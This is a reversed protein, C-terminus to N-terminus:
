LPLPLIPARNCAQNRASCVHCPLIQNRLNFWSYWCLYSQIQALVRCSLPVLARGLVDYLEIFHQM